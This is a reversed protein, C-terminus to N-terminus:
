HLTTQCLTIYQNYNNMKIIDIITNITGDLNFTGIENQFFACSQLGGLALNFLCDDWNFLIRPTLVLSNPYISSAM